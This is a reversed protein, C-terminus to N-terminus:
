VLWLGVVGLVVMLGLVIGVRAVYRRSGCAIAIGAKAVNNAVCSLIVAQAALRLLTAGAAHNNAMLLSMADVSTLGSLFSLPLVADQWGHTTVVKILFAAVGYILAFQVSTKLGLPNGIAPTHVESAPANRANFWSWAAYLVGPAAQLIIPAALAALLQRDIIGIMVALRAYMTTCALIVALAYDPALVPVDKSRRSFALTTATSSALGGVVGTATIGAKAGLMRMLVYGLFGIGSILVVMMWISYPNFAQYPGIARDPVLPLIVGTIAVFQLTARIDASTFRGTWTHLPQKIGLMVMTFAAAVIAGQIHGWNVLAGILCTLMAAAFSTAGPFQRGPDKVHGAVIHLAVLAMSVPLVAAIYNESVFAALCGLLAWLTYTRVGGFGARAASSDASAGGASAEQQDNWQRILGILAGLCASVLINNLLPTNGFLSNV